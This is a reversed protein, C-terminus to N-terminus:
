YRASSSDRIILRPQVLFQGGAKISEVGTLWKVAQAAIEANDQDVSTLSITKIDALYTNDYGTVAINSLGMEKIADEIGIAVLDNAATIATPRKSSKLMKLAAKYGSKETFDADEIHIYKKLGNANMADEYAKARGLSVKGGGGGIHAINKHGREVLHDVILAMGQSDDTRVSIARKLKSPIASAVVIQVDAPIKDLPSLDSISGVVLVSRPRLDILANVTRSDLRPVGDLGPLMASTMFGYEGAGELELRVFDVIEAFLPNHLDAVLIGVFIGSGTALSRALFNPTFNLDEAAKLVRRKKDASVAAPDSFVLSVLSKSVGARAAVDRITARKAVVETKKSSARM